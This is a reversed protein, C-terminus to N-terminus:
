VKFGSIIDQLDQAMKALGQSAAAIEEMSASQEETAASVTQTQGANEKSIKEIARSSAVIQESGGAMQQIAATIEKVQSSVQTVLTMIEKFAEGATNVVETGIKVERTGDGMADVAKDTDGQIEGILDAIQKAAEQSQEALKRVEEAVVAFGRGQEGARAAEIAANLALLNTQGAIGSITGVIQGIEKSREGLKAVVLASNSVTEDIHSMQNIATEVSKGGTHAATATKDAVEAVLSASAAVQQIGASMQEIVASAENVASVQQETGRAVDTVSAAVQNTAQASQEASATLEESSAAVRQANDQINHVMTRLDRTMDSFAQELQGIEDTRKVEISQRLNGDAVKRAVEALTQVPKAIARAGFFGITIGLIASIVSAIVATNQAQEATKIARSFVSSIQKERFNGFDNASKILADAIPALEIMAAIVEQEKGARKLPILRKEVVESYKDDIERMETAMKRSEQDVAQDLLEKEIMANEKALQQYSSIFQENGTIMFGRIAAIQSAANFAVQNTKLLLPLDRNQIEKNLVTVEVTNYFIIGAGLASVLVVIFFYLVMKATLNM